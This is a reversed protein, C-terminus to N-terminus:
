ESFGPGTGCPVSVCDGSSRIEADDYDNESNDNILELYKDPHEQFYDLLSVLAAVSTETTIIPLNVLFATLYRRTTALQAVQEIAM